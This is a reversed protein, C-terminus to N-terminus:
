DTRHFNQIENLFITCSDSPLQHYAPDYITRVDTCLLLSHRKELIQKRLESKAQEYGRNRGYKYAGFAVAFITVLSALLYLGEKIDVFQAVM